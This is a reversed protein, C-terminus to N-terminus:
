PPIPLTLQSPNVLQHFFKGSSNDELSNLQASYGKQHGVLNCFSTPSSSLAGGQMNPQSYKHFITPKRKTREYEIFKLIYDLVIEFFMM